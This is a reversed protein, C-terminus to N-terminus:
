RARELADIFPKSLGGLHFYVVGDSGANRSGMTQEVTGEPTNQNHSTSVGIGPCVQCRGTGLAVAKRALREFLGAHNTYIMPCLLDVLGLEAWKSWDQGVLVRANDADPFVAASVRVTRGVQRLSEQLERVFATIRDRNWELWANWIVNGSDQHPIELPDWGSDERFLKRTCADYSFTPETPSCPWRIYDLHIWEVPYSRVVELMQSREHERVEPLAPNATGRLEGHRSAILWDLRERMKGLLAEEDFVCFWPHVGIKRKGAEALFVELFDYDWSPDPVGIASKFYLHGDTHKVLIIVTDIRARACEDLTKQIEPLATVRRPGFLAPHGWAARIFRDAM